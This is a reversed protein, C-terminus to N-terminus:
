GGSAGRDPAQIRQVSVSAARPATQYIEGRAFQGRQVLYTTPYSPQNREAYYGLYQGAGALGDWAQNFLSGYIGASTKALSVNDAVIDRGRKATNLQKSFRVDDRAELYARENRYGLGEAMALAAAQASAVDALMDRRLGTCYKSTCKVSKRLLGRFELMALTRARGQAAEYGPPPEDRRLALAEALEQDEGPAFRDNYYDLWKKSIDWYRKAMNWEKGALEVAKAANFAASGIAAATLLNAFLSHQEDNTGHIPNCKMDSAYVM